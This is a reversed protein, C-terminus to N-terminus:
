FIDSAYLPDHKHEEKHRKAEEKWERVESTILESPIENSLLVMADYVQDSKLAEVEILARLADYAKDLNSIIAHIKTELRDCYSRVFNSAAKPVKGAILGDITMQLFKEFAKQDFSLEKAKSRISKILPEVKPGTRPKKDVQFFQLPLIGRVYRLLEQARFYELFIAKTAIGSM